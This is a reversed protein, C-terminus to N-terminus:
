KNLEKRLKVVYRSTDSPVTVSLVFLTDQKYEAWHYMTYAGDSSPLITKSMKDLSLPVNIDHVRNISDITNIPLENVNHMYYQAKYTGCSVVLLLFLLILKYRMM